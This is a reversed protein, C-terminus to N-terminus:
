KPRRRSRGPVLRPLPILSPCAVVARLGPPTPQGDNRRQAAATADPAAPTGARGQPSSIQYLWSNHGLDSFPSRHGGQSRAVRQSAASRCRPHARPGTAQTSRSRRALSRAAPLGAAHGGAGPRLRHRAPSHQRPPREALTSSASPMASTTSTGMKWQIATGGQGTFAACNDARDDILVADAFGVGHLALWPGFFAQPDESKLAGAQSSCIIDDCIVAWDALTEGDATRRRRRSRAHEFARAFCDMNDTAIVVMAEARMVRLVEFLGVNVKM